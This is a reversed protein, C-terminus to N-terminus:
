DTSPKSKQYFLKKATKGSIRCWSGDIYAGIVGGVLPVVKILNVIGKSGFKTFLRFGVMKNIKSLVKGSIRAIMQQTLKQGIKIGASKLIDKVGNSILCCYILTKVEESKINYGSIYAIKAIMRLQIYIPATIGVPLAVPLTIVGGVSSVFGTASSKAVSWNIVSDIHEEISKYKEKEQRVEEEISLTGPLGEVANDYISNLATIMTDKNLKM